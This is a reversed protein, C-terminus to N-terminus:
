ETRKPPKNGFKAEYQAIFKGEFDPHCIFCQSEPRNHEKCWDGKKQFDAAIQSSCQACVGEPVGHETCWWGSHDDASAGVAKAPPSSSTETSKGCGSLVITSGAILALFVADRNWNQFLM